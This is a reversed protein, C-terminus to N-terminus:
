HQPRDQLYTINSDQKATNHPPRPLNQRIPKTPCCTPHHRIHQTCQLPLNPHQQHCMNGHHSSFHDYLITRRPQHCYRPLPPYLEQKTPYYIQYAQYLHILSHTSQQNTTPFQQRSIKRTPGMPSQPNHIWPPPPQRHKHNKATM